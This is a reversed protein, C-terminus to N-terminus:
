REYKVAVFGPAEEEVSWYGLLIARMMADCEAEQGRDPRCKVFIDGNPKTIVEGGYDASANILAQTLASVGACVIDLGAPAFDAHGEVSVIRESDRFVIRIM